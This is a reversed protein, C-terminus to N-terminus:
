CLVRYLCLNGRSATTAPGHAHTNKAALDSLAVEDVKDVKDAIKVDSFAENVNDLVWNLNRTSIM